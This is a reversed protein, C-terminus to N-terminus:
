DRSKVFQAPDFAIWVEKIKDDVFHFVTNGPVKVKIGTKGLQREELMFKPLTDVAALGAKTNFDREMILCQGAWQIWGDVDKSWAEGYRTKVLHALTATSELSTGVFYCIGMSDVLYTLLQKEKSLGLKGTPDAANDGSVDGATHDAGMPNTLFTVATAKIARPDYSPFAQHKVHPIRDVNLIKGLEYVGLGLQMSEPNKTYIGEILEIAKDADGWKIKGAEM